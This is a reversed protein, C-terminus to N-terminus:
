KQPLISWKHSKLKKKKTQKKSTHSLRLSSVKQCDKNLHKEPCAGLLVSKLLQVKGFTEVETGKGM